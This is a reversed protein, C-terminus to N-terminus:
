CVRPVGMQISHRRVCPPVVCALPLLLLVVVVVVVVFVAHADLVRQQEPAKGFPRELLNTRRRVCECVRAYARVGQHQRSAGGGRLAGV